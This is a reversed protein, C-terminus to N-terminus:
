ASPWRLAAGKTGLKSGAAPKILGKRARRLLTAEHINMKKAMDRTTLQPAVPATARTLEALATATDLFATWERSLPDDLSLTPEIKALRQALLDRARELPSSAM